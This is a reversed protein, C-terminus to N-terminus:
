SKKKMKGKILRLGQFNYGKKQREVELFGIRRDIDNLDRRNEELLEESSQYSGDNIFDLCAKTTIKFANITRVNGSNLIKKVDDFIMKGERDM